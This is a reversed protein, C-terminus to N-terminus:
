PARFTSTLIRVPELAFDPNFKEVSLWESTERLEAQNYDAESTDVMLVEPSTAENENGFMALLGLFATAFIAKYFQSNQRRSNLQQTSTAQAPM